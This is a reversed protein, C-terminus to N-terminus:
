WTRLPGPLRWSASPMSTLCNLFNGEKPLLKGFLM